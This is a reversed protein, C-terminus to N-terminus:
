VDIEMLIVPSRCRLPICSLSLSLSLPWVLEQALPNAGTLRCQLTVIRQLEEIQSHVLQRQLQLRTVVVAGADSESKEEESAGESVEVKMMREVSSNELRGGGVPGAEESADQVVSRELVSVRFDSDAVSGKGPEEPLQASSGVVGAVFVQEDASESSGQRMMGAASSTAKKVFFLERLSVSDPSEPPAAAAAQLEAM